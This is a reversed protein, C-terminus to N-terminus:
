IKVQSLPWARTRANATRLVFAKWQPRDYVMQAANITDLGASHLDHKISDAWRTKPRGRPRKWGHINPNFDFVRRVPLSSPMRHLHGFWRLRRQRLLSSATPQKTRERISQNSVRQQWFVRLLRRQCRMDFVDLRRRDALTTAWAESSCLLVSVVLARYMNIKTRISIRHKRFLPNSLRCMASAAKVIRSTIDRSSFGDNTILSGLYTFSNVFVVEKNCIKLPLHNTPKPTIAMLKTTPWSIQTGVLNAEEQLITLAEQLVCASPAFIAIDDAYDLDTLQYEGLQIGLNCRNMLRRMLHDIVCNFLDPAIVCGQKVGTEISFEESLSSALRVASRTDTYLQRVLVSLEQPVGCIQLIKWLSDRSVSDFAAKFDIFAIYTSKNFEKSKEIIQRIAFIQETTSRGATFGAQESRRHNHFTPRIRELLIMAFLKGPISLLTIGRHNSCVDKNGKNKWFPLIIGRRWDDPITEQDM